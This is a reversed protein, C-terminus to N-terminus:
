NLWKEEEKTECATTNFKVFTRGEIKTSKQSATKTINFLFHENNTDKVDINLKDNNKL